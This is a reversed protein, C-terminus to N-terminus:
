SKQNFLHPFTKKLETIMFDTSADVTQSRAYELGATVLQNRLEENSAIMNLKHLLDDMNDDKFLLARKGHPAMSPVGGVNSAIVPLGRAMAELLVKPTGESRSSLIFVDAEDFFKWLADGRKMQGHFFICEGVGFKHALEKLNQEL